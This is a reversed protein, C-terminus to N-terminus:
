GHIAHQNELENHLRKGSPLDWEFDSAFGDNEQPKGITEQPKGVKGMPKWHYIGILNWLVVMKSPSTWCFVGSM